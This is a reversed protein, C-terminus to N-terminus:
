GSRGGLALTFESLKTGKLKDAVQVNIDELFGGLACRRRGCVPRNFMCKGIRLPGEVAEYIHKLSIREPPRALISGGKPGRMTRILRARRLAILVKTLTAESAQLRRAIERTQLLRGPTGALLAMAHLGLASMESVRFLNPM